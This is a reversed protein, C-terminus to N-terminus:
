SSSCSDQEEEYLLRQYYTTNQLLDAMAWGLANGVRLYTEANGNYHSRGGGPSVARDRWYPRADITKARGYLKPLNEGDVRRQAKYVLDELPLFDTCGGFAITSAVFKKPGPYEAYSKWLSKLYSKMNKRYTEVHGPNVTDKFGQWFVFGAVEFGATENYMSAPVFDKINELIGKVHDFDRDYQLGAYWGYNALCDEKNDGGPCQGYGPHQKGESDEYPLSDPPLFDWGLSRNGTGVKIILVPARLVHGVVHGFQIEPGIFRASHDNWGVRLQGGGKDVPGQGKQPGGAAQRWISYVDQREAWRSTGTSTRASRGDDNDNDDDDGESTDVLHLYQGNVVLNELTGPREQGDVVGFGVMNSQGMMVFVRLPQSTDPPESASARFADATPLADSPTTTSSGTTTFQQPDYHDDHAVCNSVFLHAVVLRFAVVLLLLM